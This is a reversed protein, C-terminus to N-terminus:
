KQYADLVILASVVDPLHKSGCPQNRVTLFGFVQLMGYRSMAFKSFVSVVFVLIVSDLVITRQRGHANLRQGFLFVFGCPHCLVIVSLDGYTADSDGTIERQVEFVRVSVCLVM